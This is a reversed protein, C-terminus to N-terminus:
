DFQIRREILSDKKQEIRKRGPSKENRSVEGQTVRRNHRYGKLPPTITTQIKVEGYM